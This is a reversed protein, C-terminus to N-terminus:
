SNITPLTQWRSGNWGSAFTLQVGTIGVATCRNVRPCSLGYLENYFRSSSPIHQLRWVTGNWAQALAAVHGAAAASRGVAICRSRTACSVAGLHGNFHGAPMLPRLTTWAKGNWSVALPRAPSALVGFSPSHLYSGVAICSAPRPCSIASLESISGPAPASLLRWATGNWAEALPRPTAHPGKDDVGVALCSGAAACAIGALNSHIMGGLGPTPQNQWSSGNWSVAFAQEPLLPSPRFSGVAECSGATACAVANLRGAHPVALVHWSTGDWQEALAQQGGSLRYYGVAMCRGAAPCSVGALVNVQAGPSLTPLVRWGHGVRQEALTSQIDSGNIYSGVAVCAASPPCSVASLGESLDAPSPTRRVQWTSGNWQMAFTLSAGDSTAYSGVAMCGAPRWCSVQALSTSVDGPTPITLEDWTTGDLRMALTDGVAICHGPSTCSVGNLGGSVGPPTIDQWATGNWAGALVCTSCPPVESQFRGVSTCNKASACSVGAMNPEIDFSVNGIDRWKRGNWAEGTTTDNTGDPNGGNGVAVCSRASVCSVDHLGCNPLCGSPPVPVGRWRRGNWVQASNAGGQSAAGVAMCFSKSACSVKAMPSSLRPLARWSAGNWQEAENGGVAMCFSTSPCSVGLLQGGQASHLVRWTHGDWKEALAHRVPIPESSAASGVAMCMSASVCSVSALEDLAPQSVNTAFAPREQRTAAEDGRGRAAAPSAGAILGGWVMAIVLAVSALLGFRIRCRGMDEGLWYGHRLSM